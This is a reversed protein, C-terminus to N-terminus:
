DEQMRRLGFSIQLAAVARPLRQLLRYLLHFALQNGGRCRRGLANRQLLLHGADLRVSGEGGVGEGGVGEGGVGEGGCGRVNRLNLRQLAAEDLRLRLGPLQLKQRALALLRRVRQLHLQVRCQGALRLAARLHRRRERRTSRQLLLPRRQLARPFIRQQM